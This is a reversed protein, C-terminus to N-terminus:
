AQEPWVPKLLSAYEQERVDQEFVDPDLLTDVAAEARALAKGSLRPTVDAVAQMEEMDGNCHLLMDCGAELSAQSREQFSGALAKMSLDDTMLLGDFGIEGRIVEDIIVKSQTAPLKEDYATYLIHATMAMPADALERFPAFDTEILDDRSASVVPLDEHSDSLSRGHGPIHKIIPLVGGALTGNMVERGLAAIQEPHKALARDGIVQQNADPQPVDLMPVCNVNIGMQRLDEAILRSGLFAAERGKAPDLRWLEGFRDMPPRDKWEPARLRAVRGGEQDILIPANDRGVTARLEDCLAKIQRPNKCNRAFLIFGWPQTRIFFGREEETLAEGACGFIVASQFSGSQSIDTV